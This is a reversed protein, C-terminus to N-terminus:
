LLNLHKKLEELNHQINRLANKGKQELEKDEKTAFVDKKPIYLPEEKHRNVFDKIFFGDAKKILKSIEGALLQAQSVSDHKERLIKLHDSADKTAVGFDESVKSFDRILLPVDELMVFEHEEKRAM